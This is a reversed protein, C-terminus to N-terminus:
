DNNQDFPRWRVKGAKTESKEVRLPITATKAIIDLLQLGVTPPNRGEEGLEVHCCRNDRCRWRNVIFTGIAGSQCSSHSYTWIVRTCENIHEVHLSSLHGGVDGICVYNGNTWLYVNFVHGGTGRQNLPASMILDEHEDQNLEVFIRYREVYPDKTWYNRNTGSVDYMENTVATDFLYEPTAIRGNFGLVSLNDVVTAKTTDPKPCDAFVRVNVLGAVVVIMLNRTVAWMKMEFRM